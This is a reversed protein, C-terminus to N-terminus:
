QMVFKLSVKANSGIPFFGLLNMACADVVMTGVTEGILDTEASTRSAM